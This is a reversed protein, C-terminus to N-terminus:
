LFHFASLGAERAARELDIPEHSHVDLWLAAEVARRRERARAPLPRPPRGAALAVFRGALLLGAEDLGLDSHGAAVAQALEGLVMLEPLPPVGGSRWRSTGGGLTEVWEPALHFALCEDGVVHDHTCVFEDGPHGVLLSGAVLEHTIGRTRYGFSGQRVYSVSFSG